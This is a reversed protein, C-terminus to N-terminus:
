DADSIRRGNITLVEVAFKRAVESVGACADTMETFDANAITEVLLKIRDEGAPSCGERARAAFEVLPTKLDGDFRRAFGKSAFAAMAGPDALRAERQPDSLQFGLSAELDYTPSISDLLGDVSSKARLVSWNQEHRDGNGILADLYFYGVMVDFGSCGAWSPAAPPAGYNELTATINALSHGISASKDRNSDRLEVDIAHLMALRGTVMDYAAPRVNQVVVGEVSDRIALVAHAAPIGVAGAVRSGVAETWDGIQRVGNAQITAPKFLWDSEPRSSSGGPERIWVKESAGRTEVRVLEWTSVDIRHSDPAPM